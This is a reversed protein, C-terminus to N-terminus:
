NGSAREQAHELPWGPYLYDTVCWDKERALPLLTSIYIENEKPRENATGKWVKVDWAFCEVNSATYGEGRAFYRFRDKGFANAWMEVAAKHDVAEVTLPLFHGEEFGDDISMVTFTKLSPNTAIASEM